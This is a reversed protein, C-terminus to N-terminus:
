QQKRKVKAGGDSALVPTSCLRRVLEAIQAGARVEVLSDGMWSTVRCSWSLNARRVIRRPKTLAQWVKHQAAGVASFFVSECVSFRRRVLVCLTAVVRTRKAPRRTMWVAM